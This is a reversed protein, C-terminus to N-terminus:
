KVPPPTRFAGSTLTGDEDVYYWGRPATAGREVYMGGDYLSSVLDNVVLKSPAQYYYANDDEYLPRYVGPPLIVHYKVPPLVGAWAPADYPAALVIKAVPPRSSLPRMSAGACGALAFLTLGAAPSQLPRNM